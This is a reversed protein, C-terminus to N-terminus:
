YYNYLDKLQKYNLFLLKNLIYNNINNVDCLVENYVLIIKFSSIVLDKITYKKNRFLEIYEDM